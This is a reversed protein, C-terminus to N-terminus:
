RVEWNREKLAAVVGDMIPNIEEDSLTREFSQFILRYALSKKEVIGEANKKEFVDFLAPGYVVLEGAKEKILTEVEVSEVTPPVFLAVDRIIRPYASFKQYRNDTIYPALDVPLDVSIKEALPALAFEIVTKIDDQATKVEIAEGGFTERLKEILEVIETQSKNLKKTKYGIGIACHLSQEENTFVNGIDFLRVAEQDFILHRINLDIKEKLRETLDTRLFQEGSILPNELEIDGKTTFAYGYNETFGVSVLVERLKNAVLFTKNVEKIRERLLAQSPIKDYGYVRGIEEIINEKIELDLREVPPYAVFQSGDGTVVIQLRELISIIEQDVIKVGLINEVDQATFAIQVPERKTPYVDIKHGIKATPNWEAILAAVKDIAFDAVTQSLENEFRKVADTRLNLKTATKRTSTPDFNAAELILNTTNHDVETRKGGKIGAVDLPGEDDVMILMSPDLGLDRNDLTVIREGKLAPRITVKDGKVKDADFAHLPQGIDFMVFNIADVINNISRQGIAALREKLWEPSEGVKVGEVVRGIYRRCLKPDTIIIELPRTTDTLTIALVPESPTALKMVAAIEKAIGFHSLCDHARDPLVKIDLVSDTGIEEIGEVEFSHSILATAIEAVPPLPNEFYTQLWAYSVKM